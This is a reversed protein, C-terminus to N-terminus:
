LFEFSNQFLNPFSFFFFFFWWGQNRSASAWGKEGEERQGSGRGGGQGRERRGGRGLRRGLWGPWPGPARTERGRKKPQGAPGVERKSVPRGWSAAGTMKKPTVPFSEKRGRWIWDRPVTIENGKQLGLAIFHKGRLGTAKRRM